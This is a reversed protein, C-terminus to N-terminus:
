GRTPMTMEIIPTQSPRGHKADDYATELTEFDPCLHITGRLHDTPGVPGTPSTGGPPRSRCTFNPPESVLVNIKCTASNYDIADIAAVFESPLEREDM